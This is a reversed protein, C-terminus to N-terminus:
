GIQFLLLQCSSNYCNCWWSYYVIYHKVQISNVNTLHYDVEIRDVSIGFSFGSVNSKM